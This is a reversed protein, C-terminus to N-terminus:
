SNSIRQELSLYSCYSLFLSYDVFFPAFLFSYFCYSCFLLEGVVEIFLDYSTMDGLGHALSKEIEPALEGWRLTLEEYGLMRM